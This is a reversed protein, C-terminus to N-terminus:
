TEPYYTPAEVLRPRGSLHSQLHLVPDPRSVLDSVGFSFLILLSPSWLFTYLYLFRRVFNVRCLKVFCLSPRYSIYLCKRTTTPTSFSKRFSRPCTRVPSVHGTDRSVHLLLVRFLTFYSLLANVSLECISYPGCVVYWM